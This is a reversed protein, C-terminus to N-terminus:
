RRTAADTTSPDDPIPGFLGARFEEMAQANEEATNMLFPGGAVVSEGVPRGSYVLVSAQTVAEIVIATTGIEEAKFWATQREGVRTHKSGVRVEGERVHVAVVQDGPIEHEFSASAALEADLFTIPVKFQSIDAGARGGVSGVHLRAVVGPQEILTADARPLDVYSTPGLKDAKPLNIWAQLTRVPKLEHALECHLAYRGAVMYQADGQSLVGFGGANDRHELRGDLVYTLTQVGRHPHWPFGRTSFEDEVLLIFPDWRSTHPPLIFWNDSSSSTSGNHIADVVFSAARSRARSETSTPLSSIATQSFKNTSM